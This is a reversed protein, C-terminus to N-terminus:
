AKWKVEFYFVTIICQLRGSPVSPSSARSRSWGVLGAGEWDKDERGAEGDKEENVGGGSVTARGSKQEAGHCWLRDRRRHSPASAPV